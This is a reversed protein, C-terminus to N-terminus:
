LFNTASFQLFRCPLNKINFKLINRTASLALYISVFKGIDVTAVGFGCSSKKHFFRGVVILAKKM